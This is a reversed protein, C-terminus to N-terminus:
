RLCADFYNYVEIDMQINQMINFHVSANRIDGSLDPISCKRGLIKTKNYDEVNALSTKYDKNGRCILDHLNDTLFFIRRHMLMLELTTMSKGNFRRAFDSTYFIILYPALM